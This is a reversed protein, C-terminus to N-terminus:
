KLWLLIVLRNCSNHGITPAQWPLLNQLCPMNWLLFSVTYLCIHCGLPKNLENIISSLELQTTWNAQTCDNINDKKPLTVCRNSWWYNEANWKILVIQLLLFYNIIILMGPHSLQSWDEPKDLGTKMRQRPFSIIWWRELCTSQRDLSKWQLQGDPSMRCTAEGCLGDVSATLFSPKRFTDSFPWWHTLWSDHTMLGNFYCCVLKLIKIQWCCKKGIISQVNEM